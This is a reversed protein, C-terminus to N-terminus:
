IHWRKKQYQTDDGRNVSWGFEYGVQRVMQELYSCHKGYPYAFHKIIRDTYPFEIEVQADFMPISTLDPHSHTHWGLEFGMKVLDEIMSWTCFKEYPQGTDFTNDGGVYKGVVFLIGGRGELIDRNEWVNAYVGDFSIPGESDLIEQRTNYNSNGKHIPDDSISHCVIM